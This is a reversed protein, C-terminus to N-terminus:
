QWSERDYFGVATLGLASANLCLFMILAAFVFEVLLPARSDSNCFVFEVM